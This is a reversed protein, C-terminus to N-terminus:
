RLIDKERLLISHQLAVRIVSRNMERFLDSRRLHPRIRSQKKTRMRSQKKTRMRSKIVQPTPLLQLLIKVKPRLGFREVGAQDRATRIRIRRLTGYAIEDRAIRM